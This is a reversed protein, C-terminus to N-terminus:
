SLYGMILKLTKDSATAVSRVLDTLQDDTLRTRITQLYQEQQSWASLKENPLRNLYELYGTFNPIGLKDELEDCYQQQLDHAQEIQKPTLEVEQLEEVNTNNEMEQETKNTDEDTKTTGSLPNNHLFKNEQQPVNGGKIRSYIGMFMDGLAGITQPITEPKEALSDFLKAWGTPQASLGSITAQHRTEIDKLKQDLLQQQLSENLSELKELRALLAPDTGINGAKYNTKDLIMLGTKEDVMTPTNALMFTTSGSSATKNTIRTVDPHYIKLTFVTSSRGDELIDLYNSLMTEGDDMNSGEYAIMLESGAFIGWNPKNALRYATLVGEKEKHEIGRAM